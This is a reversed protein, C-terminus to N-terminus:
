GVAQGAVVAPHTYETFGQGAEEGGEMGADMQQFSYLSVYALQEVDHSQGSKSSHSSSNKYEIAGAV